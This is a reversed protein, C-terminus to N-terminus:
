SDDVLYMQICTPRAADMLPEVIDENTSSLDVYRYFLEKCKSESALLGNENLLPVFDPFLDPRYFVGRLIVSWEGLSICDFGIFRFSGDFPAANGNSALESSCIAVIETREKFVRWVTRVADLDRLLRPGLVGRNESEIQQRVRMLESSIRGSYYADDIDEWPLRDIGRYTKQELRFNLNCSKAVAFEPKRLVMYGSVELM